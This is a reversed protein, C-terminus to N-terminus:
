LNEDAKDVIENSFQKLYHKTVEVNHHGMGESIVGIDVGSNKLTTAYTHRAVYSTLPVQIDLVKAIEKLDKNFQKRCKNIRNKKQVETQHFDSLIPFVYDGEDGLFQELIWNLKTTVKISYPKNTKIRTYNIRGGYINSKKLRAMDEFNMGRAYYSFLFYLVSKKLHPYDDLPFAKIKNMDEDSLAKPNYNTKLSGISYGKNQPTSFPYYESSIWGEKIAENFIARLTRMYFNVGGGSCGRKFLYTEFSKLFKYDIEKLLVQSSNGTFNKLVNLTDKYVNKTNEKGQEKLSHIREEFLSFVNKSNKKFNPTVQYDQGSIELERKARIREAQEKAERNDNRQNPKNAKKHLYLNLFEYHRKGNAYIDLFLSKKGNKLAKERLKVAM